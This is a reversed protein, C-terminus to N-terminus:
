ERKFAVGLLHPSIGIIENERETMQIVSLLYDKLKKDKWIKNFETAIAGIGEVPFVQVDKFGVSEIEKKLDSPRHFYADTFYMVNDTPNRHQGDILDQEIIQTFVPDKIFGSFFGDIASAFRSIAAALLIGGNKLVRFAEKLAQYRQEQETLHYLPGFLLVVDISQTPYDLSRADGVTFSAIPSDPQNQSAQRALQVLKESQDILHVEYGQSALWISYVGTAGGIDLIKAPPKPLFRDLILRTRELELQGLGTFLREGEAYSDYYQQLKTKSKSMNEEANPCVSEM